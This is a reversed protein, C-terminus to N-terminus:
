CKAKKKSIRKYNTFEQWLSSSERLKVYGRTFMIKDKKFLLFNILCSFKATKSRREFCTFDFNCFFECGFMLM